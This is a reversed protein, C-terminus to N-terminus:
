VHELEEGASAQIWECCVRNWNIPGFGLAILVTFIMGFIAQFVGHESPDLM